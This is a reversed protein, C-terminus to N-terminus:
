GSVAKNILPKLSIESQSTQTIKYSSNTDKTDNNYFTTNSQAFVETRDDVPNLNADYLAYTVDVFGNNNPDNQQSTQVAYVAPNSPKTITTSNLTVLVSNPRNQDYSYDPVWSVNGDYLYAGVISKSDTNVSFTTKPGSGTGNTVTGDSYRVYVQQPNVGTDFNFYVINTYNNVCGCLLLFILASVLVSSYSFFRKM